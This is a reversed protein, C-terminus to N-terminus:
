VDFKRKKGFLRPMKPVGVRPPKVEIKPLKPMKIKPFSLTNKM